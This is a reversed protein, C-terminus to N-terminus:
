DIRWELRPRTIGPLAGKWGHRRVDMDPSETIEFRLADVVAFHVPESLNFSSLNMVVSYRGYNLQFPPILCTATYAGAKGPFPKEPMTIFIRGGFEDYIHFNPVVDYRLNRLIEYDLKIEITENLAFHTLTENAVNTVRGSLCNTAKDSNSQSDYYFNTKPDSADFSARHWPGQEIQEIVDHQYEITAEEVSSYSVVRGKELYLAKQCMQKVTAMSHSVFLVTRGEKTLEKMREACKKQFAQDGVSLVEDLVLIDPDLWASVSFALRVYMGSSYYKVPTDIFKAVGSFDIIQSIKKKIESHKMGLIAGSLYINERGSLDPHFGTGVELLSALAGQAEFSGETPETVRSLIKLLTSKGAGNAGIIGIREGKNVEFDIHRLAWIEQAQAKEFKSEYPLPRRLFRRLGSGLADRLLGNKKAAQNIDYRKGLDTVRIVPAM